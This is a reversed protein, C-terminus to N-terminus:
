IQNQRRIAEIEERLKERELAIKKGTNHLNRITYVLVILGLLGAALKFTWDIHAFQISITAISTGVGGLGNAMIKQVTM